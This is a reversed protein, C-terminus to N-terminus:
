GFQNPLRSKFEHFLFAFIFNIIAPRHESPYFLPFTFFDPPFFLSISHFISFFSFHSYDALVDLFLVTIKQINLNNLTIKHYLPITYPFIM